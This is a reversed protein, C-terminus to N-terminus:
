GVHMPVPKRYTTGASTFQGIRRDMPALSTTNVAYVLVTAAKGQRAKGQGKDTVGSSAICGVDVAALICLSM